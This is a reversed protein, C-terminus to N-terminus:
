VDFSSVVNEQVTKPVLCLTLILPNSTHKAGTAGKHDHSRKILREGASYMGDLTTICMKLDPMETHDSLGKLSVEEISLTRPDIANLFVYYVVHGVFLCLV